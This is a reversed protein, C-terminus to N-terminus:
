RKMDSPLIGFIFFSIFDYSTLAECSCKECTYEVLPSIGVDNFMKMIRDQYEELTFNFLRYNFRDLVHQLDEVTATGNYVYEMSEITHLLINKDFKDPKIEEAKIADELTPMKFTISKVVLDDVNNKISVIKKEFLENIRQEYDDKSELKIKPYMKKIEDITFSEIKRTPKLNEGIPLDMVDVNTIKGIHGCSSCKTPIKLFTDKNSLAMRILVAYEIDKITLHSIELDKVFELMTRFVYPTNSNSNKILTENVRELISPQIQTVNVKEKSVPLTVIM